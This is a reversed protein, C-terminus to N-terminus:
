INVNFLNMSRVTSVESLDESGKEDVAAENQPPNLRSEAEEVIRVIEELKAAPM